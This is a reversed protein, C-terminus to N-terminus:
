ILLSQLVHEQDIIQHPSVLFHPLCQFGHASFGLHMLTFSLCEHLSIIFHLISESDQQISELVKYIIILLLLFLQPTGDLAKAHFILPDFHIMLKLDLIDLFLTDTYVSAFHVFSLSLDLKKSM